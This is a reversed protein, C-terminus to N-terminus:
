NGTKFLTGYIRCNKAAWYDTGSLGSCDIKLIKSGSQDDFGMVNMLTFPRVTDTDISVQNQVTETTSGFQSRMKMTSTSGSTGWLEGEVVYTLQGSWKGSPLSHSQNIVNTFSGGTGSGNGVYNIRHVTPLIVDSALKAATISGDPIVVGQPGAFPRKDQVKNTAIATVGADVTVYALPMDIYGADHNTDPQMSGITNCYIITEGARAGSYYFRIFIADTRSGVDPATAITITKQASQDHIIGRAIAAGTNVTVDMDSGNATVKLRNTGNSNPYSTIVGASWTGLAHRLASMDIPGVPMVLDSRVTKTTDGVTATWYVPGPNGDVQYEFIGDADTTVTDLLTDDDIKRIEVDTGEAVPLASDTGRLFGRIITM